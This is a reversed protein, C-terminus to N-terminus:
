VDVVVSDIVPPKAGEIIIDVYGGDVFSVIGTVVKTGYYNYSNSPGITVAQTTYDDFILTLTTGQSVDHVSFHNSNIQAVQGAVLQVQGVVIDTYVSISDQPDAVIGLAVLSSYDTDSVEYATCSMTYLMRGLTTNPSLSVNMLRIM